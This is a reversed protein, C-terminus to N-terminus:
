LKYGVGLYFSLIYSFISVEDPLDDKTPNPTLNYNFLACGTVYLNATISYDVGCGVALYLDNVEMDSLDDAEDDGDANVSLVMSYLIGAAPWIVLSGLKIPYKGLLEINLVNLYYNDPTEITDSEEDGGLVQKDKGSRGLSMAYSIALRAYTADVFAGLALMTDMGSTESYNDSDVEYKTTTSAFGLGVQGGVSIDIQGFVGAALLIMLCLFMFRKM